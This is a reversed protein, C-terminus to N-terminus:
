RSVVGGRARRGGDRFELVGDLALRLGVDVAHLQVRARGLLYNYARPHIHMHIYTYMYM